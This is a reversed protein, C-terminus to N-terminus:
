PSVASSADATSQEVVVEVRRNAARGLPSTNPVWPRESGYGHASLREAAVGRSILYARVADARAQTLELNAAEDPSPDVHGEIRVRPFEPHRNLIAAIRDLAPAAKGNLRESARLFLGGAPMAAQLEHNTAAIAAARAADFTTTTAPKSEVPSPAVEVEVPAAAVADETVPALTPAPTAPPAPIPEDSRKPAQNVPLTMSVGLLARFAPTGLGLGIGMGGVAYVEVYSGLPKRAGALLESTARGGATPILGRYTLEGRLGDGMTQLSVAGEVGTRTVTTADFTTSPRLAMAVEGGLRLWSTLSHGIGVRPLVGVESSLAASTGTPLLVGLSVSLDMVSGRREQLVGVRAQVVSSGLSTPAPRAYGLETLDDGRQTLVVPLQAGVELWSLPAWGVAVHTTVRDKVLAGAREGNRFLVLPEYEYHGTVSVRLAGQDMLLGEETVLSGKAGPNLRLTEVDLNPMVSPSQTQALAGTSLSVALAGVAVSARRRRLLLLAAVCLALTPMANSGTSSCGLGGGGLSDVSPLVTIVVEVPASEVGDAVVVFTFRDVGNFFHAPKYVRHAGDGLLQGHEPQAVIRYSLEAGELDNGHLHVETSAGEQVTVEQADAVPADDVSSVALSITAVTSDAQGDSVQFTFSDAGFFNAAPTYTFRPGTGSLAGHAPATVVRYSLADGDMDSAMVTLEVSEDENVTASGSQAVPADNMPGVEISVTAPASDVTGDSVIFTFSDGGIVDQAPTYTLNPAVGSLTGRTPQGVVTFTLADNDVDTGSLVLALPADEPTTASLASALPADNVGTVTISITAVASDVQGDNAVFTFTDAGTFNAAPLYRLSPATGTLTGHQPQAVVRFTLTDHEVDTAALTLELEADENTSREHAEAVPADNVATVSLTVTVDDTTEAGDKVHFSFTDTGSANANPTYTLNPATGTLTGHQPQTVIVFTLADGDVDTGNLTFATALDEDVMVSQAQVTPADNVASVSISLTAPASDTTGDTVVFSFTDTGAYNAAPTYTLNPASGSLTGHAPATVIRYQLADGDNDHGSLTVTLATDETANLAPADAVPADNMSAVSLSVTAVNSDAQGDNAKFTFADAGHFNAAPTYTLNAGSGSLSGHQPQAVVTFTLADADLDSGALTIAKAVDEDLAVSQADAVPVDNVSSVTLSVVAAVSDTSGDNVQFSFSDAGHYGTAPTYSLNPATGTLTGHQPQAVVTFTLADGETDSGALTITAATDEDTTLSQANAVPADNVSDITLSVTMPASDLAGDNAIFTFSDTGHFNAAPTFTFNPASGSLTGHQPQVSVTFTLSDGEVDSGSLEIALAADESATLTQANAVPADNVSAINLSIVAVNSDAQGDNAKFSFSDAGHFNAAPTYTLNPATGSLSGHQPESIVEYSLSDADDDHLGLSVAVATDENTGLSQGSAVPADNVSAINLSIVAVNSDAQGDNAKFTFSDPGHYNAAPAYTLNAGSGTLSGHQPGSVVSYTLADHDDDSASLTISVATDETTSLSQAAAVPVDNVSAVNLSVTVVNSSASGDSAEFTFSDAGHFNAAP